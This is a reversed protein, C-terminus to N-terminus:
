LVGSPWGLPWTSCIIFVAPQMQEFKAKGLHYKIVYYKKSDLILEQYNRRSERYETGTLSMLSSCGKNKTDHEIVHIDIYFQWSILWLHIKQKRKTKSEGYSTRSEQNAWSNELISFQSECRVTLTSKFPVTCSRHWDRQCGKAKWQRGNPKKGILNVPYLVMMM